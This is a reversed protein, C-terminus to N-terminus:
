VETLIEGQKAVYGIVRKNQTKIIEEYRSIITKAEGPDIVNAINLGSDEVKDNERM